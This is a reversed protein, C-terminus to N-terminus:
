KAYLINSHQDIEIIKPDVMRQDWKIRYEINSVMEWMEDPSITPFTQVNRIEIFTTPRGPINIHRYGRLQNGEPDERDVTPMHEWTSIDSEFLQKM